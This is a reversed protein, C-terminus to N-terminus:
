GGLRHAEHHIQSSLAKLRSSSERDDLGKAVAWVEDGLKRLNSRVEQVTQVDIKSM